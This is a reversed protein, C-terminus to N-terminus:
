RPGGKTRLYEYTEAMIGLSEDREFESTWQKVLSAIRKKVKDHTNQAANGDHHCMLGTRNARVRDAIM